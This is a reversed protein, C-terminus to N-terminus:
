HSWRRDIPTTLAREIEWGRRLRDRVTKPNIGYHKSWDDLPKTIGHLTINHNRSTNLSQERATVWRCNSPEYDGVLNIRDLTLTEKYGHTLAWDRFNEFIQWEKCVSIGKAGYKRYGSCNPKECRQRMCLWINHLRTHSM